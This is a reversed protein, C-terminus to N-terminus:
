VSSAVLENNRAVFSATAVAVKGTKKKRRRKKLDLQGYKNTSKQRKKERGGGGREREWRGLQCRRCFPM